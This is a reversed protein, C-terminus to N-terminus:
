EYVPISEKEVELAAAAPAPLTREINWWAAGCMLFLYPLDMRHCSYFTSGLLFVVPPMHIGLPIPKLDPKQRRASLMPWVTGYLLLGVYLLIAFIGSDVLMQMYSNHAVHGDDTTGYRPGLVAYNIGGFGVGLLPYDKWMNMAAKAHVIRSEASAEEEYNKLTSMRAVYTDQVLYIAGGVLVALLTLSAFKHKTRGIILLIGLAMALSGGRSSSMVIAAISCGIIGLFSLRLWKWPVMMRCQWCLPILMAFALAVFNNDALMDSYGSALDAGGHLVGYAGFKVAVVGLSLAIVLLLNRL